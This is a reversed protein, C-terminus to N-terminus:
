LNLQQILVTSPYGFHIAKFGSQTCTAMMILLVLVKPAMEVGGAYFTGTAGGEPMLTIWNLYGDNYGSNDYPQLFAYVNAGYPSNDDESLWDFKVELTSYVTYDDLEGGYPPTTPANHPSILNANNEQSFIGNSNFTEGSNTELGLFGTMSDTM